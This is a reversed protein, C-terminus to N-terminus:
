DHEHEIGGLVGADFATLFASVFRKKMFELMFDYKNSEFSIPEGKRDRFAFQAKTTSFCEGCLGYICGTQSCETNKRPDCLYMTSM